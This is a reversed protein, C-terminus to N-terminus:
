PERLDRREYFEILVKAGSPVSALFFNVRTGDAGPRTEAYVPPVGFRESVIRTARDVDTARYEVQQIGEGFKALYRAIAGPGGPQTTTLIDLSVSGPFHLEFEAADQEPPVRALLPSGNAASIRAFTEQSVAVGVTIEPEDGGLLLALDPNNRWERVVTEALECGARFLEAAGAARTEEVSESLKQIEASFPNKM